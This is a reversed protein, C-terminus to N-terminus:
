LGRISSKRAVTRCSIRFYKFGERTFSQTYNLFSILYKFFRVVRCNVFGVLDESLTTHHKGYVNRSCMPWTFFNRLISALFVSDCGTNCGVLLRKVSCTEKALIQISPISASINVCYDSCLVCFVDFRFKKREFLKRRGRRWRFSDNHHTSNQHFM